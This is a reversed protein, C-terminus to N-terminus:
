CSLTCVPQSICICPELSQDAAQSSKGLGQRCPTESCANCGLARLMRQMLLYAIRSWELISFGNADTLALHEHYPAHRKM